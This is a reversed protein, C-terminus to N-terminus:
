RGQDLHIPSSENGFEYFTEYHHRDLNNSLYDFVAMDMIDLMRRGGDYPEITKILDCYGKDMEWPALKTRSYSRRWPHRWTMRLGPGDDEPLFGSFSAPLNEPAGCLGHSTDCYYKCSGTLCINGAPSIYFTDRLNDDAKNRIDTILNVLRGAVPPARHFGLLRCIFQNYVFGSM